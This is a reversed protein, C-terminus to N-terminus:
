WKVDAPALGNERLLDATLPVWQGEVRAEVELFPAVPRIHESKVGETTRVEKFSVTDPIFDAVIEGTGPDVVFTRSGRIRHFDLPHRPDEEIEYSVLPETASGVRGIAMPPLLRLEDIKRINM